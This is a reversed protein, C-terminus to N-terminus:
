EVSVFHEVGLVDLHGLIISRGEAPEGVLPKLPTPQEMSEISSIVDVKAKLVTAAARIVIDEGWADRRLRRMFDEWNGAVFSELDAAGLKTGRNQEFFDCVKSRLEHHTMVEGFMAAQKVMAHFLCNGDGMVDVIQKGARSVRHQLRLRHPRSRERRAQEDARSDALAMAMAQEERDDDGGRGKGSDAEGGAEQRHGKGGAQGEPVEEAGHSQASGQKDKADHWLAQCDDCVIHGGTQVGCIM